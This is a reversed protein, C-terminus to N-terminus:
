ELARGVARVLSAAIQDGTGGLPMFSPLSSLSASFRLAIRTVGEDHLSWTLELREGDSPENPIRELYIASPRQARVAVVLEFDKTFRGRAVRLKAWAKAAHGEPDRELVEVERFVNANWRPYREIAQLLAFSEDISALVTGSAQGHLQKM